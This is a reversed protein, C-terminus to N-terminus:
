QQGVARVVKKPFFKRYPLLLDFISPLLFILLPYFPQQGPQISANASFAFLGLLLAPVLWSLHWAFRQGKRFPLVAVVLAFASLVLLTVGFEQFLLLLFL